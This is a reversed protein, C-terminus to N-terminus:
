QPIKIANLECNEKVKKNYEEKNSNYLQAIDDQYPSGPYPKAFIIFISKLVTSINQFDKWKNKDTISTVCVRGDEKRINMHYINKTKCYVSPPDEPYNQPFIIEFKFMYGGYPSNKPASMLVNWEFMKYIGKKEKKPGASCGIQSLLGSKKLLDWEDRIIQEPTKIM